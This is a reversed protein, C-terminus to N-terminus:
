GILEKIKGRLEEPEYPKILLHEVGNTEMEERLLTDERSATLIVIPINKTREDAKLKTYVEIGNLVPLRLDLLVLDPLEAFAKELAEGGDVATVTDYGEKKVRFEAMKLIDPEDDVILVKKVEGV